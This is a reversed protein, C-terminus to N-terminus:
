INFIVLIEKLGIDVNQVNEKKMEKAPNEKEIEDRGKGTETGAIEIGLVGRVIEETKILVSKIMEILFFIM